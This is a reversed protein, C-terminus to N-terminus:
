DDNMEMLKEILGIDHAEDWTLSTTDTREALGESLMWENKGLKECYSDWLGLDLLDGYQIQISIHSTIKNTYRRM